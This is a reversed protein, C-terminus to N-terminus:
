VRSKEELHNEAQRHSKPEDVDLWFLGDIPCCRARGEQALVRVGGSLSADGSERISTEIATFLAPACLFIGTDFCNYEANGKGIQEIRNGNTLVRTVDEMDVLPNNLNTDVALVLENDGLPFRSLLRPIEPDFLHDSMMLLFPSDLHEKAKLVSMGNPAEWDENEILTIPVQLRRGLPELFARVRDGAYGIVIFFEEVGGEIASGIVREILPVGAVPTLPKSEGLEKLRTGMGAAIILCKM